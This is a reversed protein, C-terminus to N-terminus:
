NYRVTPAALPVVLGDAKLGIPGLRVERSTTTPKGAGYHRNALPLCLEDAFGIAFCSQSHAM